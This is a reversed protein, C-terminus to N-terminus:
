PFTIIVASKPIYRDIDPIMWRGTPTKVARIRSSYIWRKLTIFSIGLCECVERPSLM